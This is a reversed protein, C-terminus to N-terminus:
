CPLFLSVKLNVCVEYLALSCKEFRSDSTSIIGSHTDIDYSIWSFM